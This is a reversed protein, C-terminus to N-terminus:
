RGSHVTNRELFIKADLGYERKMIDAISCFSSQQKTKLKVQPSQKKKM